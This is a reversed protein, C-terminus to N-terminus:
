EELNNKMEDYKSELIAKLKDDSITINNYAFTERAMKIYNNYYERELKHYEIKYTVISENIMNYEENACIIYNEDDLFVNGLISTYHIPYLIYYDNYDRYNIKDDCFDDNDTGITIYEKDQFYKIDKDVKLLKGKALKPIWKNLKYNGKSIFEVYNYKINLSEKYDKGVVWISKDLYDKNILLGNSYIYKMFMNDFCFIPIIDNTKNEEDFKKGYLITDKLHVLIGTSAPILNFNIESDDNGLLTIDMDKQELITTPMPIDNNNFFYIWYEALNDPDIMKLKENDDQHCNFLEKSEKDHIGIYSLTIDLGSGVKYNEIYNLKYDINNYTITRYVENKSIGVSEEGILSVKGKFYM